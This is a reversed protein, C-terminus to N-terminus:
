IYDSADIRNQTCCHLLLNSFTAPSFQFVRPRFPSIQTNWLWKGNMCLEFHCCFCLWLACMWLDRMKKEIEDVDMAITTSFYKLAHSHVYTQTYIYRHSFTSAFKVQTGHTTCDIEKKWRTNSGIGFLCWNNRILVYDFIGVQILGFTSNKSKYFEILKYM